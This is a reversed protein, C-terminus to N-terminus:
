DDGLLWWAGLGAGVLIVTPVVWATLAKAIPQPTPAPPPALSVCKQHIQIVLQGATSQDVGLLQMVVPVATDSAYKCVEQVMDSPINYYVGGGLNVLLASEWPRRRGTFRSRSPDRRRAHTVSAARAAQQRLRFYYMWRSGFRRTNLPSYPGPVTGTPFGSPSYHAM